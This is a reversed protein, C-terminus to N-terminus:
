LNKRVKLRYLTLNVAIHTLGGLLVYAFYKKGSIGSLLMLVLMVGLLSDVQDVIFFVAGKGGSVTRGEPIDLRRKIFSNPLEFLMYVFGFLLGAFANYACSNQYINYLESHSSASFACLLLGWFVQSVVCFLIMSCFGIWTKHEGFIRKGDKLTRGFDMPMRHGKYLGTRTFLMNFIGGMIVPMMTIYMDVIKM